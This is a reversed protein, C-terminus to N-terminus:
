YDAKGPIVARVGGRPNPHDGKYRPIIHIHAHAVSQGAWRGDNVGINFDFPMPTLTKRLHERVRDILLWCGARDQEHLDFLSVAIGTLMHPKPLVLMHGPSVPFGDLVAFAHANQLIWKSEDLFPSRIV